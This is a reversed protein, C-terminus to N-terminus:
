KVLDFGIGEVVSAIEVETIEIGEMTIMAPRIGVEVTITGEMAIRIGEEIAAALSQHGITGAILATFGRGFGALVVVRLM